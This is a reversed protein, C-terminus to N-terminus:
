KIYGFRNLARLVTEVERFRDRQGRESTPVGFSLFGAKGIRLLEVSSPFGRDDLIRQRLGCTRFRLLPIADVFLPVLTLDDGEFEVKQLNRGFADSRAFGYGLLHLHNFRMWEIASDQSEETPLAVPEDDKEIAGPNAKRFDSIAVVLEHVLIDVKKLVGQASRRLDRDLFHDCIRYNNSLVILRDGGVRVLLSHVFPPGEDAEVGAIEENVTYDFRHWGPALDARRQLREITALATKVSVSDGWLLFGSLTDSM